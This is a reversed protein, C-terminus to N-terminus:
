IFKQSILAQIASEHNKASVRAEKGTEAKINNRHDIVMYMRNQFMKHVSKYHEPGVRDNEYSIIM